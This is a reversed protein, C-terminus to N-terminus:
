TSELKIFKTLNSAAVTVNMLIMYPTLSTEVFDAETFGTAAKFLGVM